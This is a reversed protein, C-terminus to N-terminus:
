GGARLEDLSDLILDLGWEFEATELPATKEQLAFGYIYSDQVSYAHVALELPFGAERLCGMAADRHRRNAPGPNMRSEMLGVAWPHRRLAERASVARRRMAQRWDAGPEPDEIESWVVDVMEDLLEERGGVHKYLAMPVVGLANALGRMSFERYGTRDALAVAAAIVRERNLPKRAKAKAKPPM